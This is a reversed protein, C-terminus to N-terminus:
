GYAEVVRLERETCPWPMCCCATNVIHKTMDAVSLHRKSRFCTGGLYRRVYQEFGIARFTGSLSTKLNGLLTNIWRFKPLDNAPKGGTVIAEHSCGATTVSRFCAL